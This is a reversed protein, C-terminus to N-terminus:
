VKINEDELFNFKSKKGIVKFWLAAPVGKKARKTTINLKSFKEGKIINKSAVIFKRIFKSNTLEKKYPKKQSNGLIKETLRIKEVFEKLERPNLSAKHDPGKYGKNLTFHKEIVEAGLSVASIAAEYGLSHDSYGVSINFKKKLFIISKLNLNELSAPYETSCHLLTINKKKTGNSTLVKLASRIDKEDSMGTSLIIKKNLRALHQLYPINTIEGSPIKITKLKLKKLLDISKIDFPSSLFKIKKLKCRKILKEHSIESLFYKKLMDRQNSSNISGVQYKALGFNKQVLENPFFTQFKIYDAQAKSAIDIMKFALKLSGNHNVGAEAIIISKM